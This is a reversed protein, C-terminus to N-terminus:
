ERRQLDNFTKSYMIKLKNYFASVGNTSENFIGQWKKARPQRSESGKFETRSGMFYDAENVSQNKVRKIGEIELQMGRNQNIWLHIYCPEWRDSKKAIGKESYIYEQYDKMVNRVSIM